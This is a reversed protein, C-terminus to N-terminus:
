DQLMNVSDRGINLRSLFSSLKFSNPIDGFSADTRKGVAVIKDAAWGKIFDTALFNALRALLTPIDGGTSIRSNIWPCIDDKDKKWDM